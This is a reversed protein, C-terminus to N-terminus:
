TGTIEPTTTGAMQQAFDAQQQVLANIEDQMGDMSTQMDDTKKKIDGFDDIRGKLVEINGANQQALILANNPDSTNYAQYSGDTSTSTSTTSDSELGERLPNPPRIQQWIQYLVLLGLFLIMMYIFYM